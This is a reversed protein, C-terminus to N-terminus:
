CTRSASAPDQLMEHGHQGAVKRAAALAERSRGDMALAANLFHINHPYYAAPYIGQARCQTIYDEDAAVAKLNADVADPYRGVRMYVHSPMHVLHGAMPVLGGLREASPVAADVFRSAEMLHIYLPEGWPPEPPAACSRELAARARPVARRPKGDKTWYNWPMTNMVADAYLTAVDPDATHRAYVKSMAAAYARNLQDRDRPQAASFRASLADILAQEKRSAAARRKVAEAIADAAQQERDPGMAPDNINPALALAQGWYAMACAPDLRAAERFSRLAEAHNFAYVLTLGQNIFEQAERSATTVPFHLSGLNRLKPALRGERTKEGLGGEMQACAALAFVMLGAMCRRLQVRLM